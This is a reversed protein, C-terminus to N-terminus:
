YINKLCSDIIEKTEKEGSLFQIDVELFVISEDNVIKKIRVIDKETTVILADESKAYSLLSNIEDPKFFHHDPFSETVLIDAGLDELLKFFSRPNAVGAVCIVKRDRIQDLTYVLDYASNYFGNPRFSVEAFQIGRPLHPILLEKLALIKAPKVLDARGIVILDADKLAQFGERMYGLPAVKYKALPLLADFLVINLKRKIKIHQHGDELLVVDPEVKPFYFSLNESRKKGVVVTADELRRAFLLAEDGYDGADPNIKKGSYLLGSSNELRGKYGRMLIMVRKNKTHLYESLWLTFPTKGTGGFTLNGISIIPVQFSRQRLIGYDYCIRRSYYIFGWVWSLPTFFIKKLFPTKNKEM